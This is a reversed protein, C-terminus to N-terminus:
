AVLETEMRVFPAGPIYDDKVGNPFRAVRGSRSRPGIDGCYLELSRLIGPVLGASEGLPRGSAAETYSPDFQPNCEFFAVGDDTLTLDWGAICLGEVCTHARTVAEVIDRWRPITQGTLTTVLEHDSQLFRVAPQVAADLITGADVAIPFALGGGALNDTIADGQAVKLVAQVIRVGQPGKFTEIRFGAKAGGVLAALERSMQAEEQVLLTRGGSATGQLEDILQRSTFLAGDKGRYVGNQYVWLSTGRGGSGVVPKVFLNVPPLLRARRSGDPLWIGHGNVLAIVRPGRLGYRDLFTAFIAKDELALDRRAVTELARTWLMGTLQQTGTLWLYMKTKGSSRYGGLAFYPSLDKIGLLPRFLVMAVSDIWHTVRAGDCDREVYPGLDKSDTWARRGWYFPFTLISLLLVRIPTTWRMGTLTWFDLQAVEDFRQGHPRYWRTGRAYLESARTPNVRLAFLVLVLANTFIYAVVAKALVLVSSLVRVPSARSVRMRLM